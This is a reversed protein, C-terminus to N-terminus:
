NRPNTIKKYKEINKTPILYRVNSFTVTYKTKCTIRTRQEIAGIKALQKQESKSDDDDRIVIREVLLYKEGRIIHILRENENNNNNDTM